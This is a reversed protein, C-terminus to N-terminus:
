GDNLEVDLKIGIGPMTKNNGWPRWSRVTGCIDAEDGLFRLWVRDGASWERISYVFCGHDSVNATVVKEADEFKGDASRHVALYRVIDPIEECRERISSSAITSM